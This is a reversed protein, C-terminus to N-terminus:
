KLVVYIPTGSPHAEAEIWKKGADVFMEPKVALKGDDTVFLAQVSAKWKQIGFCHRWLDDRGNKIGLRAGALHCLRPVM